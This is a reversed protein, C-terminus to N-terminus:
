LDHLALCKVALLHVINKSTVLGPGIDVLGFTLWIDSQSERNTSMILRRIHTNKYQFQRKYCGARATLVITCVVHLNLGARGILGHSREVLAGFQLTAPLPFLLTHVRPAVHAVDLMRVCKRGNECGGECFGREYCTGYRLRVILFMM